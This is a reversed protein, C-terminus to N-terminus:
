IGPDLGQPHKVNKEQQYTEHRNVDAEGTPRDVASKQKRGHQGSAKEEQEKTIAFLFNDISNPGTARETFLNVDQEVSCDPSSHQNTQHSRDDEVKKKLGNELMHALLFTSLFLKGTLNYRRARWAFFVLIFSM